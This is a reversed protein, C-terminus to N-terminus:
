RLASVLRSKEKKPEPVPVINVILVDQNIELIEGIKKELATLKANTDPFGEVTFHGKCTDMGGDREKTFEYFIISNM